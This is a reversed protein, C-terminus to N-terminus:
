GAGPHAQRGTDLDYYVRGFSEFQTIQILHAAERLAKILKGYEAIECKMDSERETRCNVSLRFNKAKM